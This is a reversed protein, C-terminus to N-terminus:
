DAKSRTLKIYLVSSPRKKTHANLSKQVYWIQDTGLDTGQDAKSHASVQMGLEARVPLVTLVQM